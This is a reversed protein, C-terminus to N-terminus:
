RLYELKFKSSKEKKKNSKQVKKPIISMKATHGQTCM